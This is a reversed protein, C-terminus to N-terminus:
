FADARASVDFRMPPVAPVREAPTAHGTQLQFHCGHSRPHRAQLATVWHAENTVLSRM